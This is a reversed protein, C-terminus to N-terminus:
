IVNTSSSTTTGASIASFAKKTAASYASTRERSSRSSAIDLSPTRPALSAVRWIPRISSYMAAQWTPMVSAEIPMPAIPSGVM